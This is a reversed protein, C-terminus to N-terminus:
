QSWGYRVGLYIGMAIGLIVLIVAWRFSIKLWVAVVVLGYLFGAVGVVWHEKMMKEKRFRIMRLGTIPWSGGRSTRLSSIMM